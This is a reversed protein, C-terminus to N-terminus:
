SNQQIIYPSEITGNGGAVLVNNKLTISPRIYGDLNFVGQYDLLGNSNVLFSTVGHYDTNLDMLSLTWWWNTKANNNLYYNSNEANGGGAYVVEDYTLLGIKNIDTEGDVGTTSCKFTVYKQTSRFKSGAIFNFTTNSNILDDVNGVIEGDSNSSIDYANTLDGICWTDNKLLAKDSDNTIKKELWENLKVRASNEKDNESNIYDNIHWLGNMKYGYHANILTGKVGKEGDTAFGSDSTLNTESCELESALILKISGDGEIRVIRFCMGAFNVYNDIVNGRFYRSTGFDDYSISMIAEDSNNITDAPNTVPTSKVVTGNSNNLSNKVIEYALTGSHYPNFSAEDLSSYIQIRGSFKHGQDVAQSENENNIYKVEFYYMYVDEPNEIVENAKILEDANPFQGTKIIECTANANTTCNELEDEEFTSGKKRYLTYQLDEQRVYENVVDNLFISYTVKTEGVNKISFKMKISSGVSVVDPLNDATLDTYLAKASGSTIEISKTANNGLINIMFFGYTLSLLALTVIIIGSISITILTKKKM